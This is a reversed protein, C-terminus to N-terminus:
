SLSGIDYIDDKNFKGLLQFTGGMQCTKKRFYKVVLNKLQESPKSMCVFSYGHMNALILFLAKHNGHM